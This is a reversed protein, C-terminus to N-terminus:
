IKITDFVHSAAYGLTYACRQQNQIKTVLQRQM